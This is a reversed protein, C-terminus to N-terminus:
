QADGKTRKVFRGGLTSQTSPALHTSTGSAVGALPRAAGGWRTRGYSSLSPAFFAALNSGSLKVSDGVPVDIGGAMTKANLSTDAFTIAFDLQLGFVTSCLFHM